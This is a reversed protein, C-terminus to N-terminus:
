QHTATLQLDSRDWTACRLQSPCASMLTSNASPFGNFSESAKADSDSTVGHRHNRSCKLTQFAIIIDPCNTAFKWPKALPAGDKDTLGVACGNFHVRQLGLQKILKKVDKRKWYSCGVPREICVYDGCQLAIQSLDSCM